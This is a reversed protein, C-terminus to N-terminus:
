YPREGIFNGPPDYNCVWLQWAGGGFPSNDTCNALACGLGASSRWVVQTYHGCVGSCGNSAYDYSAVEEVWSGVVDTPTASGTTAYLNEGFPGGSHEFVCGDAWGQATGALAGSWSLPPIAPDAPPNVNARAANHADTMGAMEPPEQDGSGGGSPDGGSPDGSSTSSGGCSISLALLLFALASRVVPIM